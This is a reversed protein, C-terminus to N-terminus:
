GLTEFELWAFALLASLYDLGKPLPAGYSMLLDIVGHVIFLAYISMHQM